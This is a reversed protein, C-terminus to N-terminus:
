GNKVQLSKVYDRDKTFIPSDEVVWKTRVVGTSRQSINGNGMYDYSQVSIDDVFNRKVICSGRKCSVPYNNWNIGKDLMLMDQMESGNKGQLERHSFVSQAAMSVSNRTTDQQRWIFYNVVEELEPIQFVRSDFDALKMNEVVNRDLFGISTLERLLRQQNFKTAAHSASISTIKQVQGDYWANTNLDDYDTLWLSIEDSAVYGMKCGQVKECLYKATEQMDVVFDMDFPKELGKTYKSFRKGDLRIIINTRSTLYTRTRVEYYNKMRESLTLNKM